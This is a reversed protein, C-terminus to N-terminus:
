VRVAPKRPPHLPSDPGAKLHRLQDRLVEVTNLFGQLIKSFRTWEMPDAAERYQLIVHRDDTNAGLTAGGTGAWAVNAGAVFRLAALEQEPSYEHIVSSFMLADEDEWLSIELHISSDFVLVCRDTESLSLGSLEAVKGLEALLQNIRQRALARRDLHVVPTSPTMVQFSAV